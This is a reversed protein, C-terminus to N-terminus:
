HYLVAKVRRPDCTRSRSRGDELLRSKKSFSESSRAEDEGEQASQGDGARRSTLAGMADRLDEIVMHGYLDVTTSINAHRLIRQVHQVPVGRKLLITATSHRLDHFRMPRPLPKLWFRMGCGPCQGEEPTQVQTTHDAEGRAKCRRCIRLYGVVLGARGLARRLVVQPDSEAGRMSGDKAPFVLEGPANRIAWSLFPRLDPAIPIADAHGGKTTDKGYSRAVTITMQELDVDSKRLGLIEGKRMGTYLATAVVGRWHTSVHPMLREAEDLSLVSYARKPVRRADIREVPNPGVWLGAQTARHFVTGLVSRLKNISAPSAGDREMEYLREDIEAATVKACPLAGLPTRIIHKGLRHEEDYRSAPKCRNDIWWKCLQGLTQSLNAPLPDLGLEQREVKGELERAIRVADRRTKATTARERETGHADIWRVHWTAGRLRVHAM